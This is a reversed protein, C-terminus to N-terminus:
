FYRDAEALTEDSTAAGVSRRALLGVLAAAGSMGSALFLGGLAYTDSWVPQNSVSLLVGTYGAVFLGFVSGVVNVVRGPLGGALGALFFYLLIYWRWEPPQSFHEVLLMVQGGDGRDRPGARARGLAARAPAQDGAPRGAGGPGRRHDGRRLRRRQQPQAPRRE